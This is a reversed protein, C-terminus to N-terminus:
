RCQHFWKIKIVSPHYKYKEIANLVPDYSLINLGQDWKPISLTSTINIFYKNFTTAIKLDETIVDDNELLQVSEGVNRYKDSLYPKCIDWLTKNGINDSTEIKNFYTEKCKRNLNSVINRQKKYKLFDEVRKSTQAIRKLHSRHM